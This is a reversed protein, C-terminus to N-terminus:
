NKNYYDELLQVFEHKESMGVTKSTLGCNRIAIKLEKISMDKPDKPKIVYELDDNEMEEVAHNSIRFQDERIARLINEIKLM